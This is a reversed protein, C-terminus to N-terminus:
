KKEETLVEDSFQERWKKIMFDGQSMDKQNLWDRLASYETKYEDKISLTSLISM